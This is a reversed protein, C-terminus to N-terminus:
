EAVQSRKIGCPTVVWSDGLLSMDRSKKEGLVFYLDSSLLPSFPCAKSASLDGHISM